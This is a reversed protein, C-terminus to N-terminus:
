ERNQWRNLCSIGEWCNNRVMQILNCQLLATFFILLLLETTTIRILTHELQGSLVMKINNLAAHMVMRMMTIMVVMMAGKFTLCFSLSITFQYPGTSLSRLCHMEEISSQIKYVSLSHTKFLPGLFPSLFHSTHTNCHPPPNGEAM